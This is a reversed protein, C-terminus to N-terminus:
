KGTSVSFLSMQIPSPGTMFGNMKGFGSKGLQLLSFKSSREEVAM